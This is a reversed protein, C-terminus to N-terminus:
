AVEGTDVNVAGNEVKLIGGGEEGGEGAAGDFWGGVAGARM